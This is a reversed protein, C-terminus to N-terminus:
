FEVHCDFTTAFCSKIFISGICWVEYWTMTHSRVNSDAANDASTLLSPSSWSRLWVVHGTANVSRVSALLGLQVQFCSWQQLDVISIANWWCDLCFYKLPRIHGLDRRGSTSFKLLFFLEGHEQVAEFKTELIGFLVYQSLIIQGPM